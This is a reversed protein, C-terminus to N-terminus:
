AFSGEPVLMLPLSPLTEPSRTCVLLHFNHVSSTLLLGLTRAVLHRETCVQRTGGATHRGHAPADAVTASHAGTLCTRWKADSPLSMM